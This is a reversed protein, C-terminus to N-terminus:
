RKKLGRRTLRKPVIPIQKNKPHRWYIIFIGLTTVILLLRYIWGIYPIFSILYYILLGFFLAWGRREGTDLAKLIQKGVTLSGIIKALFVFIMFIILYLLAIPIGFITIVLLLILFPSFFLILIGWGFSQLPRTELLDMLRAGQTPWLRLLLFGIIFTFLFSILNAIAKLDSVRKQFSTINFGHVQPTQSKPFLQFNKDYSVQGAINAKQDIRAEKPGGYFLSGETQFNPGIILEDKEAIKVDKGFTGDLIVRRAAIKGGLAVKAKSYLNGGIAILSGPVNMKAVQINGGIVSINKGVISNIIVNGGIIKIDQGVKGTVTVNGGVIILDGTTYGDFSVIGGALYTDGNITGSILISPGVKILDSDITENQPIIVTEVEKASVSAVQLNFLLSILFVSVIKRMLKEIPRM